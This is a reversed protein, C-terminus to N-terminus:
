RWIIVQQLQVRDGLIVPLTPALETRLSVRHSTLERQALAIVEGAIDNVDLPMRLTLRTRLRVRRIV